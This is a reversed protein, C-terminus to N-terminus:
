ITKQGTRKDYRRQEAKILAGVWQLALRVNILEAPNNADVTRAVKDYIEKGLKSIKDPNGAISMEERLEATTMLSLRKAM